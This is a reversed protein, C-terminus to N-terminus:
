TIQMLNSQREEAILILSNMSIMAASSSPIWPELFLNIRCSCEVNSRMEMELNSRYGDTVLNEFSVLGIGEFESAPNSFIQVTISQSGLRPIM